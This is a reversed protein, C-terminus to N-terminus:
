PQHTGLATSIAATARAAPMGARSPKASTFFWMLVSFSRRFVTDTHERVTFQGLPLLVDVEASSEAGVLVEVHM